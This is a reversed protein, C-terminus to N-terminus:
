GWETVTMTGSSRCSGCRAPISYVLMHESAPPGLRTTLQKKETDLELEESGCMACETMSESPSYYKFYTVGVATCSGCPTPVRWLIKEVNTVTHLVNDVEEEMYINQVTANELDYRLQPSGCNFCHSQQNM